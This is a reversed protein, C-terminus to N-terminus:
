RMSRCPKPGVATHTDVIRAYTGSNQGYATLLTCDPISEGNGDSELSGNTVLNPPDARVLDFDDMTVAGVQGLLMGVSIRIADAPM